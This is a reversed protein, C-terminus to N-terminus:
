HTDVAINPLGFAQSLDIIYEGTDFVQLTAKDIPQKCTVRTRILINHAIAGMLPQWHLLHTYSGAATWHSPPIALECVLIEVM